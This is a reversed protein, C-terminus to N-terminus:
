RRKAVLLLAICRGSLNVQCNIQGPIPPKGALFEPLFEPMVEPAIIGVQM